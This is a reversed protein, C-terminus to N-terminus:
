MSKSQNGSEAGGERAHCYRTALKVPLVAQPFPNGSLSKQDVVVAVDFQLFQHPEDPSQGVKGLVLDNAGPLGDDQVLELVHQVVHLLVVALFMLREDLINISGPNTLSVRPGTESLLWGVLM